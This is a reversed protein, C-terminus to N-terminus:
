TLLHLITIVIGALNKAMADPKILVLVKEEM